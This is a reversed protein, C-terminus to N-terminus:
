LSEGRELREVAERVRAALFGSLGLVGDRTVVRYTGSGQWSGREGVFGGAADVQLSGFIDEPWAIRGWDPPNRRDSVHLWGAHGGSGTGGQASAGGAGSGGAGGGGGARRTRKSAGSASPFFSGGSGLSSGAQSAFSAAHAQIDPDSTAHAALVADLLALFAPNTTFDDPATAPDAHPSTGLALHANPPTTPTLTLTYSARSTSSSTSSSPAPHM